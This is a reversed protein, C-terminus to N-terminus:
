GAGLLAEGVADAVLRGEETLRVVSGEREAQGEDILRGLMALTQGGPEVGFRRQVETLDVGDNMRLGFILADELLLDPTLEVRDALGREGREIGEQWRLLDSTNSHRTGRFQSAASPGLGLWEEMRWTNVNHLCRHGPKSYNSIEYQLFGARAAEEWIAYYFRREREPDLSVKGQQLKIYLATDEEFTLCYTSLHDPELALTERVDRRWSDESQGPIAFILDLNVSQFGVSRVLDYAKLIQKRSHQRGLAELLKEDLSQIGMSIRTVGAEKLAQLKDRKVSSPAMEVSWERVPVGYRDVMSGALRLLDRAPLLGPTGGGWFMTDLKRNGLDVLEIERAVGELYRLIGARDSQVQYFGCFDCSTSCFPVHVYLGLPGRREESSGNDLQVVM